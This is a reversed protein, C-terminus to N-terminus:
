ILEFDVHIHDDHLSNILPSLNQAIYIGSTKLKKGYETAFLEDKLDTNIIVKKIKIGKKRAEKELLLIHQALLNFDISISTDEIYRGQKDFALFYHDAGTKDLDYCPKGNKIKPVMFDVSLGNQHTRHPFMKGGNKNSCEMLYFMRNPHLQELTSYTALVAKKVKDHVFARGKVYSLSDFYAFNNGKYPMLKGNKLSGASVTGVSQSPQNDGKNKKYFAEPSSNNSQGFLSLIM